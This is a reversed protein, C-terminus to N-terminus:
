NLQSTERGQGALEVRFDVEVDPIKESLSAVMFNM